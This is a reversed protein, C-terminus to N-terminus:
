ACERASNCVGIEDWPSLFSNVYVGCRDGVKTCGGRFYGSSDVSIIGTNCGDYTLMGDPSYSNGDSLTKDCSVGDDDYYYSYHIHTVDIGRKEDYYTFVLEDQEPSFFNAAFDGGPWFIYDVSSTCAHKGFVGYRTAKSYSYCMGNYVPGDIYNTSIDCASGGNRICTEHVIIENVILDESTVVNSFGDSAKAKFYYVGEEIEGNNAKGAIWEVPSNTTVSFVEQGFWSLPNWSSFEGRKWIGYNIYKDSCGSSDVFLSIETNVDVPGSESWSASNLICPPACASCPGGCDVGTEIGNKVGDSCTPAPATPTISSGDDVHGDKISNKISADGEVEGSLTDFIPVVKVSDPRGLGEGFEDSINIIYVSKGNNPPADVIKSYSEDGIEFILKVRNVATNNGKIEVQVSTLNNDSDYVTYGDTTVVYAQASKEIDHLQTKVFDIGFLWLMTILFIVILILLVAAVVDSIGRKM